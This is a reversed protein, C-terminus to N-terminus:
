AIRIAKPKGDKRCEELTTGIRKRWDLSAIEQSAKMVEDM